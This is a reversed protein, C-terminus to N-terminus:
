TALQGLKATASDQVKTQPDIESYTCAQLGSPMNILSAIAAFKLVPQVQVTLPNVWKDNVILANTKKM